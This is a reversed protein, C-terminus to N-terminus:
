PAAQRLILTDGRQTFEIQQLFSMGLLVEDSTDSPNIVAAVDDLVIDGIGARDINTVYGRALGSATRLQIQPGYELDLRRAIHEPVAIGTAGTDLLFVVDHGNITGDTVYHGENNRQLAIERLGGELYRTSLAQNPNRKDDLYDVFFVSVMALVIVWMAVLMAGGIRKQEKEASNDNM